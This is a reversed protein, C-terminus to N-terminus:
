SLFTMDIFSWTSTQVWSLRVKYSFEKRYVLRRWKRGYSTAYLFYYIFTLQVESLVTQQNNIFITAWYLFWRVKIWWNMWKNYNCKTSPVSFNYSSVSIHPRKYHHYCFNYILITHVGKVWIKYVSKQNNFFFHLNRLSMRPETICM